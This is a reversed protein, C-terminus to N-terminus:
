VRCSIKAAELLKRWAAAEEGDFCTFVAKWGNNPAALGSQLGGEPLGSSTPQLERRAIELKLSMRAITTLGKVNVALLEEDSLQAFHYKYDLKAEADYIESQLVRAAQERCNVPVKLWYYYRTRSLNA